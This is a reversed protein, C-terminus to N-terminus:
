GGLILGSQQATPQVISSTAQRYAAAVDERTAVLSTVINDRHFTVNGEEASMMFPLFGLSAQQSGQMTAAILVPRDIQYTDMKLDTLKGVVEEGGVLRFTVIDGNKPSRPILM